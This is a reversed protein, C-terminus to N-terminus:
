RLPARCPAGAAQANPGKFIRRIVLILLFIFTLSSITLGIKFVPPDFVFYVQHKGKELFVSRLVYDTKYLDREEGDVYVRWGPYWIESLVLLGDKQLDVELLVEDTAYRTVQSVYLPGAPDERGGESPDHAELSIPLPRELIAMKEPDFGPDQLMSLIEDPDLTIVVKDVVWARPLPTKNRYIWYESGPIGEYKALLAARLTEDPQQSFDYSAEKPFLLYKVNLLDLLRNTLTAQSFFKDYYSLTLPHYGTVSQIGHYMLQNNHAQSYVRFLTKDGKLLQVAEDVRYYKTALSEIPLTKIFDKNLSWLDALIFAVIVGKWLSAQIRPRLFMALILSSAMLLAGLSLVSKLFFHYRVGLDETIGWLMEKIFPSQSLIPLIEREKYLALLAGAFSSLSLSLLMWALHRLRRKEAKTKESFLFESGYGALVSVSLFLLVIIMLPLRFLSFGPVYLYVFKYLPTYKGLALIFSLAGLFTFFFTVGNRRFLLALLALVIPFIGLYELTLRLGIRGRYFLTPIPPSFDGYDKGWGFPNRLFLGLMEEPPQSWSTAFEWSTAATLEGGRHTFQKYEWVSSFVVMSLGIGILFALAFYGTLIGAIKLSKERQLIGGLQFLFYLTLAICSYFLFQLHGSLVQVGIVGGLMAFYFFDKERVGKNLLLLALPIYASIFVKGGHGPYISSILFNNFMYTIGSVFAGYVSVRLDRMFAFMFVGMLFVYLPFQYGIVFSVPLLFYLFAHPYFVSFIFSGITPMGSFLYPTWLPFTHNQLLANIGFVTFIYSQSLTDTGFLMRRFSFIEAFFLHSLGLFWLVILYHIWKRKNPPNIKRLM